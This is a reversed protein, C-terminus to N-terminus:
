EDLQMESNVQIDLNLPKNMEHCINHYSLLFTERSMQKHTRTIITSSSNRNELFIPVISQVGQYVLKSFIYSFINYQSTKELLAKKEKVVCM